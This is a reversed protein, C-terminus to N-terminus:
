VEAERHRQMKIRKEEKNRRLYKMKDGDITWLYEM